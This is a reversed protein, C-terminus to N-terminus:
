SKWAGSGHVLWQTVASNVTGGAERLFFGCSCCHLLNRKIALSPKFDLRGCGVM